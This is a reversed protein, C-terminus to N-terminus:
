VEEVIAKGAEVVVRVMQKNKLVQTANGCGVVCPIGFERAVIAAHCTVGGLDTVIAVAVKMAPVMDPTTMSTVLVAGKPTNSASGTGIYVPGQATGLSAGRGKVVVSTTM